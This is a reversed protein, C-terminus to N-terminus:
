YEANHVRQDYRSSGDINCDGGRSEHLGVSRPLQACLLVSSHCGAVFFLVFAYTPQRKCKTM